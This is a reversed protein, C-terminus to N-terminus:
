TECPHIGLIKMVSDRATLVDRADGALNHREALREIDRATAHGILQLLREYGSQLAYSTHIAAADATGLAQARRLRRHFEVELAFLQELPAM